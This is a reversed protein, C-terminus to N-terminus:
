TAGRSGGPPQLWHGQDSFHKILLSGAAAVHQAAAARAADGDRRAIAEFLERHGRESLGRWEPLASYFNQPIFTLTRRLLLTLKPSSAALNIVRHFAWNTAEMATYDEGNTAALNAELWQRLVGLEDADIRESARAALEGALEAHMWYIDRIDDRTTRSVRFSRNPSGEVLGEHTLRLLAERVPMTSVGLRGALEDQTYREGPRLEGVLIMERLVSATEDALRKRRVVRPAPVAGIM